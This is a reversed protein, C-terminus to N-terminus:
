VVPQGSIGPLSSLSSGFDISGGRVGAAIEYLWKQIEPDTEQAALAEIEGAAGEEDDDFFGSYNEFIGQIQNRHQQVQQMPNDMSTVDFQAAAALDDGHQRRANAAQQEYELNRAALDTARDARFSAAQQGSAASQARAAAYNAGMGTNAASGMASGLGRAAMTHIDRVGARTADQHAGKFEAQQTGIRDALTLSAAAKDRLAGSAEKRLQKRKKGVAQVQEPSYPGKLEPKAM